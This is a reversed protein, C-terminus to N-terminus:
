KGANDTEDRDTSRQGPNPPQAGPTTENPHLYANALSRLLSLMVGAVVVAILYRTLATTYDMDHRVFAHWLAPSDLVLALVLTPIRAFNM